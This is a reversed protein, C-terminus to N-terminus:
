SEERELVVQVLEDKKMSPDGADGALELLDAKTLKSLEAARVDAPNPDSRTAKAWVHPLALLGEGPDDGSPPRGAIEDPVDVAVGHPCSIDLRVYSEGPITVGTPDPGVYKIRM